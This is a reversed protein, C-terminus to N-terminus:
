VKYSCVILPRVILLATNVQFRYIYASCCISSPLVLLRVFPDICHRTFDNKKAVLVYTLEVIRVHLYNSLSPTPGEVIITELYSHAGSFVM